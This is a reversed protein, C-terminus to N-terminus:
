ITDMFTKDIKNFIGIGILIIIIGFSFSYIMHNIECIGVGFLAYRFFEIIPTIPNLLVFTRFKEPVTSLPYVVPSAYMLLSLGFSILVQLDRYRTTLASVIVGIGVSIFGLNIFLLPLYLVFYSIEIDSNNIKFYFLLLLFFIFQITFSIFKSIFISIPVTLRPFYVKGFIGANNIFTGSTAQVVDSFFIWIINGSMYFIFQPLGDTSINAIKGFVVTFVFTSILPKIIHWLPGLITQKYVAIFDRKVFLTILDLNHWLENLKLDFYKTQSTIVKDWDKDSSIDTM